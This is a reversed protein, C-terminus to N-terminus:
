VVPKEVPIVPEEVSKKEKKFEEFDPRTLRETKRIEVRKVPSIVKCKRSIGMTIKGYIIEQMFDAYNKVLALKSMEAAAIQRLATKQSTTVRRFTFVNIKVRVRQKDQTIVDVISEVKSRKRRTLRRLYGRNLLTEYLFTTVKNGRVSNTMFKVTTNQMNMKGTIDRMSTSVSRGVLQSPEKAFTLGLEKENFFKPAVV